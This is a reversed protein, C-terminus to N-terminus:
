KSFHSRIETERFFTGFITHICKSGAEIVVKLLKDIQVRTATGDRVIVEEM